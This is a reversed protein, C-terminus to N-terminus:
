ITEIKKSADIKSATLLDELDCVCLPCKKSSQLWKSICADCFVHGCIMERAVGEEGGLVDRCIPCMDDDSREDVPKPVLSSVADIDKLGVRVNGIRRAIELNTEYDTLDVEQVRMYNSATPVFVVGVNARPEYQRLFGDQIDLIRAISTGVPTQNNGTFFMPIDDDDVEEEDEADEPTRLRRQRDDIVFDIHFLRNTICQTLHTYYEDPQVLQECIECPIFNSDSMDAM